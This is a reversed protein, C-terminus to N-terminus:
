DYFFSHSKRKKSCKSNPPLKRSITFKRTTTFKRNTTFKRITPVKKLPSVNRTAKKPKYFSWCGTGNLLNKDNQQADIFDITPIGTKTWYPLKLLSLSAVIKDTKTLDELEGEPKIMRSLCDALNMPGTDGKHHETTFSFQSIFELWRILRSNPAGSPKLRLSADSLTSLSRNDTRWIFVTGCLQPYFHELGYFLSYLEKERIPWNVQSERFTGSYYGLPQEKGDQKKETLVGGFGHNSADTTLITTDNEGRNPFALSGCSSLLQKAKQFADEQYDTWIFKTRAGSIEHLPALTHQLMPISSTYFSVAGIFSKLETKTKPKVMELIAKVKSQLPRFGFSGVQYGLYTVTAQGLKSKDPHLRIGAKLLRKFVEALVMYHTDEDETYVAIDDIYVMVTKFVLDGLIDMMVRQYISPSTSLGMPLVNWTYQRGQCTFATVEQSEEDLALQWFGSRADLVSFVKAGALKELLERINPIPWRNQKIVSNVWRYDITLRPKGCKKKVIHVPSNFPSGRALQILGSDCMAKLKEDVWDRLAYPVVRPKCYKPNINPDRLHISVPTDYRGLDNDDYAFVRKYFKVMQKLKRRSLITQELLNDMITNTLKCSSSDEGELVSFIGKQVPFHSSTRGVQKGKSSIDEKTTFSVKESLFYDENTGDIHGTKHTPRVPHMSICKIKCIIIEPIEPIMYNFTFLADTAKLEGDAEIGSSGKYVIIQCKRGTGDVAMDPEETSLNLEYHGPTLRALDDSKPAVRIITLMQDNHYTIISEKVVLQLSHISQPSVQFINQIRRQEDRNICKVKLDSIYVADHTMMTSLFRIVEWGLLADCSLNRIVKFWVNRIQIKDKKKNKGGRATIEVTLQITGIIDVPENSANVATEETLELQNKDIKLQEFAFKANICSFAAGSDILLSCPARFNKNTIKARIKCMATNSKIPYDPLNISRVANIESKTCLKCDNGSEGQDSIPYTTNGNKSPIETKGTQGENKQVNKFTPFVKEETTPIETKSQLNLELVTTKAQKNKTRGKDM